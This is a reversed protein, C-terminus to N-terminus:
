EVGAERLLDIPAVLRVLTACKARELESADIRSPNLHRGALLDAAADVDLALAFATALRVADPWRARLSNLHAPTLPQYVDRPIIM